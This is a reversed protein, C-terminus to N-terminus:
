TVNEYGYGDGNNYQTNECSTMAAMNTGWFLSVAAMNTDGLWDRPFQVRKKHLRKRKNWYIQMPAPWKLSFVRNNPALQHSRLM